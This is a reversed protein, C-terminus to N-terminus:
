NANYAARFRNTLLPFIWKNQLQRSELFAADITYYDIINVYIIALSTGTVLGLIGCVNLIM